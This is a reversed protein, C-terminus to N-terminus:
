ARGGGDLTGFHGVFHQDIGGVRFLGPNYHNAAIADFLKIELGGLALLQAAINIEGLDRAYLRRQLGREDLIAAVTVAEQGEAFDVGVIILNRDGVTLRQDFGVFARMALGLFFGFIAGVAATRPMAVRAAAAIAVPRLALDYVRFARIRRLGGLRVIMLMMVVLGAFVPVGVGVIGFMMLRIRIMVAMFAVLMRVLVNMVIRMFAGVILGIVIMDRTFGGRRFGLGIHRNRRGDLCGGTGPRIRRGIRFNAFLVRMVIMREFVLGMGVVRRGGLARIAIARSRLVVIMGGCGPAALRMIVFLVVAFLGLFLDNFGDAAVVDHLFHRLTGEARPAL